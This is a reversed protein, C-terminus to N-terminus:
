MSARQFGAAAEWAVPAKNCAMTIRGGNKGPFKAYKSLGDRNLWRKLPTQSLEFKSVDFQGM